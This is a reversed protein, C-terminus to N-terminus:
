FIFNHQYSYKHSHVSRIAAGIAPGFTHVQEPTIGPVKVIQGIQKISTKDKIKKSAAILNQSTAEVGALIFLSAKMGNEDFYVVSELITSIIMDVTKQSLLASNQDQSVSKQYSFTRSFVSSGRPTYLSITTWSHGIDVIGILNKEETPLGTHVLKKCLRFLAKTNAEMSHVKFINPDFLDQINKVIEKQAAYVTTRVGGDESSGQSISTIAQGFPLPIDKQGRKMAELKMEEGKQKGKLVFSSSFVRSEPVLITTKIKTKAFPSSKIQEQLLKKLEATKVIKEDQVLGDPLVIEHLYEIRNFYSIQAMRIHHDSIDIGVGSLYKGLM